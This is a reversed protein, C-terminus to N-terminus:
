MLDFSEWYVEVEQDWELPGAGAGVSSTARFSWAGSVYADGQYGYLGVGSPNNRTLTTSYSAEISGTVRFTPDDGDLDFEIGSVNVWEWIPSPPGAPVM